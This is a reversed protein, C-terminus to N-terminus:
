KRKKILVTYPKILGKEILEADSKYSVHFDTYICGVNAIGRSAAFADLLNKARKLTRNGTIKVRLPTDMHAKVSSVDEAKYPNEKLEGVSMALYLWLTKGRVVLKAIKEGAIRFNECGQCMRSHIGGFGLLYNKLETYIDQAKESQIIRARFSRRYRIVKEYGEKPEKESLDEEALEEFALEKLADSTNADGRASARDSLNEDTKKETKKKEEDEKELIDDVIEDLASEMKARFRAKACPFTEAKVCYKCWSSTGCLDYGAQESALWKDIDIMKQEREFEEQGIASLDKSGM